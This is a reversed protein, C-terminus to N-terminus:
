AVYSSGSAALGRSVLDEVSRPEVVFPANPPQSPPAPYFRVQRMPLNGAREVLTKTSRERSVTLEQPEEIAILSPHPFGPCTASSALDASILEALQDYTVALAPASQSAKWTAVLSDTSKRIIITSSQDFTASVWPRESIFREAAVVDDNSPAGKRLRSITAPIVGFGLARLAIPVVVLPVHNPDSRSIGRTAQMLAESWEVIGMSDLRLPVVTAPPVRAADCMIETIGARLDTGRGTFMADIRHLASEWAATQVTEVNLRAGGDGEVGFPVGMPSTTHIRRLDKRLSDIWAATESAETLPVGLTPLREKQAYYGTVDAMFTSLSDDVAAENKEEFRYVTRISQLGRIVREAQTAGAVLRGAYAGALIARYILQSDERLLRAFARVNQEDRARTDYSKGEAGISTLRQIGLSAEDWPPSTSIVRLLSSLAAFDIKTNAVADM